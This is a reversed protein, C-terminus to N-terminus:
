HCRRTSELVHNLTLMDFFSSSNPPRNPRVVM